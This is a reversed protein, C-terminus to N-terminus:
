GTTLEAVDPTNTEWATVCLVGPQGAAPPQLGLEPHCCSQSRGLGREKPLLCGAEPQTGVHESKPCRSDRQM